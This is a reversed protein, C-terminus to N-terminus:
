LTNHIFSILGSKAIDFEEDIDSNLSLIISYSEFYLCIIILLNLVYSLNCYILDLLRRITVLGRIM